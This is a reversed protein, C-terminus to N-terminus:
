WPSEQGVTSSWDLNREDSMWSPLNRVLVIDSNM